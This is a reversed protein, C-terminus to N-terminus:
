PATLHTAAGHGAHALRAQLARILADPDDVRMALGAVPRRRGLLVIATRPEHLRVFVNPEGM